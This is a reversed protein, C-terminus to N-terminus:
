IAVKIYKRSIESEGKHKHLSEGHPSPWEASLGRFGVQHHPHLLALSPKQPYSNVMLESSFANDVKMVPVMVLHNTQSTSEQHISVLFKPLVNSTSGILRCRLLVLLKCNKEKQNPQIQISSNQMANQVVNATRKEQLYKSGILYLFHDPVQM